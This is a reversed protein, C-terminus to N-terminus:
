RGSNLSRLTDLRKAANTGAHKDGLKDISKALKDDRGDDFLKAEIKNIAKAAAFEPKMESSDFKEKWQKANAYLAEDAGKLGSMMLANIEKARYPYGNSALWDIRAFQREIASNINIIAAEALAVTTHPDKSGPKEITKNAEVIAKAYNGKDLERYIKTISSPTGKPWERGSKAMQELKKVIKSHDRTSYGKMVIVGSSDLLVYNPIGRMGTSAVRESTWIVNNGLWGKDLAFSKMKSDTAGQAECLVVQVDSGFENQM